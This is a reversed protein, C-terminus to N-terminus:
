NGPFQSSTIEFIAGSETGNSAALIGQHQRRDLHIPNTIYDAAGMALGTSEAGVDGLATIFIVPITRLTPTAMIRRCTQYGEHKVIYDAAGLKRAAIAIAGDGQSSIILFPPLDLGSRDRLRLDILVLDYAHAMALRPMAADCSRVMDVVLHPAAEAFRSVTLEIDM